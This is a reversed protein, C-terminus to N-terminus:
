RGLYDIIIDVEAELRLVDVALSDLRWSDQARRLRLLRNSSRMSDLRAESARSSAALADVRRGLDHIVGALVAGVALVALWARVSM